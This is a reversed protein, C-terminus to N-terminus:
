AAVADTPRPHLRPAANLLREIESRRVVARKGLKLIEIEGKASLQYLRSRSLGPYEWQVHDVALVPALATPADILRPTVRPM